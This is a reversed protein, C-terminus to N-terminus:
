QRDSALGPDGRGDLEQARSLWRQEVASGKMGTVDPDPAERRQLWQVFGITVLAAFIAAGAGILILPLHRRRLGPRPPKGLPRTSEPTPTRSLSTTAAPRASGAPGVRAPQAKSPVGERIIISPRKRVSDGEGGAKAAFDGTAPGDGEVSHAHAVSGSGIMITARRVIDQESVAPTPQPWGDSAAREREDGRSGLDAAAAAQLVRAADLATVPREDRNKALLRGLATEISPFQSFRPDIDSLRPALEFVQMTLTGVASDATLPVRGTLSEFLLVGLAYLDSRPDLEDGRAQEPSMYQPTGVIAGAMTLRTKSGAVRAIGFDLLKVQEPQQDDEVLFVNDPKLDRHIIGVRHAAALGRAIACAIQLARAPELPGHQAIERALSRGDLFEMVSFPSGSPTTGYDIIDVVNPHKVSSALRAEQAFRKAIEEQQAFRQRLVKIALKRGILLHTAKYILGMGGSGIHEDIRYRDGLVVGFLPEEEELAVDRPPPSWAESAAASASAAAGGAPAAHWGPSSTATLTPISASASAPQWRAVSGSSSATAPSPSLPGLVPASGIPSPRAGLASGDM